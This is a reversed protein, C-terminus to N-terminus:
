RCDKCYPKLLYVDAHTNTVYGTDVERTSDSRIYFHENIARQLRLARHERDSEAEIYRVNLSNVDSM